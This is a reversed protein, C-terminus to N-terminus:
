SYFRHTFTLECYLLTLLQMPNKGARKRVIYRSCTKLGLKLVKLKNQLIKRDRQVDETEAAFRALTSDDM